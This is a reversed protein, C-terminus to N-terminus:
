LFVCVLLVLFPCLNPSPKSQLCVWLRMRDPLDFWPLVVTDNLIVAINTKDLIIQPSMQNESNYNWIIFIPSKTIQFCKWFTHPVHHTRVFKNKYYISIGAHDTSQSIRLSRTTKALKISLKALHRQVSFVITWPWKKFRDRPFLGIRVYLRVNDHRCKKFNLRGEVMGTRKTEGTSM